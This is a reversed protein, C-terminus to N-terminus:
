RLTQRWDFTVADTVIARHTARSLSGPLMVAKCVPARLAVALGAAVGPRLAPTVEFWGTAGGGDAVAPEVLQHLARRSPGSGYTFSLFRGRHLVTGAALGSLRLERGGRMTLIQAAKDDPAPDMHVPSALFSARADQLVRLRSLLREALSHRQAVITVSGSWLRPGIDARIIEGGGTENTEVAESLDFQTEIWLGALDDFLAPLDLPFTLAM